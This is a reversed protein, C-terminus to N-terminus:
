LHNCMAACGPLASDPQVLRGPYLSAADQSLVNFSQRAASPVSSRVWNQLGIGDEATVAQIPHFLCADYSQVLPWMSDGTSTYFVAFGAALDERIMRNRVGRLKLELKWMEPDRRSGDIITWDIHFPPAAEHPSSLMVPVHRQPHCRM